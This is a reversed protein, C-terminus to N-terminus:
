PKSRSPAILGVIFELVSYVAFGALALVTPPLIWPASFAAVIGAGYQRGWLLAFLFPALVAVIVMATTGTALGWVFATMGAASALVWLSLLLKHLLDQQWRTRSAVAAWMLWRRIVPVGLDELMFRFYRDAYQDTLGPVAPTSPQPILWDHILAAPTHTGYRSAFWRLVTPVSTLDTQPLREPTVLRITALADESLYAELGTLDGVYHVTSYLAFHRADIQELHIPGGPDGDVEFSGRWPADPM